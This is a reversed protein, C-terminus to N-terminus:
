NEFLEYVGEGNKQKWVHVGEKDKLKDTNQKLSRDIQPIVDENNLELLPIMVFAREYMRPHPVILQETEINDQNYLLIDLDITRPGWRIERKRSLENEIKQLTHLLELPQLNVNAKIVMNLFKDQEEYGVPDTEYISSYNVIEISSHNQMKKIAHYLYSQREGINSGLAIFSTNIMM